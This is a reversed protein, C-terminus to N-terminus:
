KIHEDIDAKRVEVQSEWALEKRRKRDAGMLEYPRKHFRSVISFFYPFMRSYDYVETKLPRPLAIISNGCSSSITGNPFGPQGGTLAAAAPAVIDLVQSHNKEKGPM